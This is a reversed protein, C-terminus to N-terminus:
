LLRRLIRDIAAPDAKGASKKMATGKIANIANGKGGRFEAVAKPNEAIASQCLQEL